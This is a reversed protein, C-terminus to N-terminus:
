KIEEKLKKRIEIRQKKVNLKDPIIVKSHRRWLLKLLIKNIRTKIKM